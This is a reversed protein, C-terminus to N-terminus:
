RSAEPTPGAVPEAPASAGPAAGFGLGSLWGLLAYCLAVWATGLFLSAVVDTPYHRGLYVRSLAMLLPWLVAGGLLALRQWGKRASPLFILLLAGALVTAALTHGSPFSDPTVAHALEPRPRRFFEKFFVELGPVGLMVAVFFRVTRGRRLLPLALLLAPLWWLLLDRGGADSVSRWLRTWEPGGSRYFSRVVLRDWDAVAPWRLALAVAAFGLSCALCLALACRLAPKAAGPREFAGSGDAAASWAVAIVALLIGLVGLEMAHLELGGAASADEWIELFLGFAAVACLRVGHRHLGFRLGALTGGSGKRAASGRLQWALHAFFVVLLAGALHLRGLVLASGFGLAWAGAAPWGYGPVGRAAALLCGALASLIGLGDLFEDRTGVGLPYAFGHTAGLAVVGAVVASWLALSLRSSVSLRHRM